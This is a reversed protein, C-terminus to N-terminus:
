LRVQLGYLASIVTGYKRAMPQGGNVGTRFPSYRAEAGITLSVSSFLNCEAQMRGYTLMGDEGVGAGVRGNMSILSTKIVSHQIFAAGWLTGEPSLSTHVETRYRPSFNPEATVKSLRGIHDVRAARTSPIDAIIKTGNDDVLGNTENTRTYQTSGLEMGVFTSTSVGYGIGAAVTTVAGETPSAVSQSFSTTVLVDIAAEDVAIRASKEHTGTSTAAAPLDTSAFLSNLSPAVYASPRISSSEAKTDRVSAFSNTSASSNASAISNTSAFSNAAAISGADPSDIPALIPEAIESTGISARQAVTRAVVSREQSAGQPVSLSSGDTSEVKDLQVLADQINLFQDGFPLAMVLLLAAAALVRRAQVRGTQLGRARRGRASTSAQTKISTFNNDASSKLEHQESLSSAAHKAYMPSADIFALVREEVDVPVTTDDECRMAIHLLVAADFAERAEPDSGLMARFQIDEELSLEGDLYKSILVDPIM